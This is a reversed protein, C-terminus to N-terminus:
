VWTFMCIPPFILFMKYSVFVTHLSIALSYVCVYLNHIWPLLFYLISSSKTSFILRRIFKHQFLEQHIIRLLLLQSIFNWTVLYTTLSILHSSFYTYLFGQSTEHTSEITQGQPIALPAWVDEFGSWIHSKRSSYFNGFSGLSSFSFIFFYLVGPPFHLYLYFDMGWIPM